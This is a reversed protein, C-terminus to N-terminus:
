VVRHPLGSRGVTDRHARVPLPVDSGMARVHYRRRDDGRASVAGRAAPRRRGRAVGAVRARRRSRRDPLLVLLAHVPSSGGRARPRFCPLLLLSWIPPFPAPANGPAGVAEPRLSPHELLRRLPLYGGTVLLVGLSYMRTGTGFGLALPSSALVVGAIWGGTRG